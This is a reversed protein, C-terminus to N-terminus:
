AHDNAREAMVKAKKVADYKTQQPWGSMTPTDGRKVFVENIMSNQAGFREWKKWKYFRREELPGGIVKASVIEDGHDAYFEEYAQPNLNWFGHNMMSLPNIHLIHGSPKCLNRVNKFAQGINFCHELTGPDLVVDFALSGGNLLELYDICDQNLDFLRESGRHAQNDLYTAEIGFEHFLAATDYIPFHWSHWRQLQAENDVRKVDYEDTLLLDPVGLSLLRCPALSKLLDFASQELAM